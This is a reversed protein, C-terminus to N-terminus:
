QKIVGNKDTEEKQLSKLTDISICFEGDRIRSYKPNHILFYLMEQKGFNYGKDFENTIIAQETLEM